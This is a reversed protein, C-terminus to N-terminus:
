DAERPTQRPTQPPHNSPDTTPTRGAGDPPEDTLAQAVRELGTARSAKVLVVDGPALAGRLLRIAADADPVLVSEGDWSGELCAGLHMPRAGEGVVILQSVDLRVALRGIVDHESPGSDGLELMEGLVAFTRASGNRHGLEALTKLAARMSDPNANYADNIVTVGSATHSVEMRWKSRATLTRLIDVVEDFPMGVGLAVAAAAAANMAQHEGVLPVTVDASRDGWALTFRPHGSDDLDVASLRVDAEPAEGFTVVRAPTRDRMARVRPDDANLVALGDAPLAEVLEGKAVAIEDQSGFEGLHAVGVNLVLGVRPRVMEALERIHGRGRAGMEFVLYETSPKVRLATLPAGIENNFSGVTAVTEGARELLQAIMDKTSTKGQSGTLGGVCLSPLRSIVTTALVTMAAIVDDVVVAPVGVPREALVAAAGAEVAAVAFDHGDVREGRIAVYLGGPVVARSDHFVDGVVEVASGDADVVRGGVAAAIDALTMRIM